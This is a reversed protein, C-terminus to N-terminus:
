WGPLLLWQENPFVIPDYQGFLKDEQIGVIKVSLFYNSTLGASSM